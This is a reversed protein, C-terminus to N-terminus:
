VNVSSIILNLQFALILVFSWVSILVMVQILMEMVGCLKVHRMRMKEKVLEVKLSVVVKEMELVQYDEASISRNELSALLLAAKACQFAIQSRRAKSKTEM